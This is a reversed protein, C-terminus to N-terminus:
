KFDFRISKENHKISASRVIVVITFSPLNGQYRHAYIYIHIYIFIFIYICIYIDIYLYLGPVYMYLTFYM